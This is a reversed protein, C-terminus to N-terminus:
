KFAKVTMNYFKMFVDKSERKKRDNVIRVRAAVIALAQANEVLWNYAGKDQLSAKVFKFMAEQKSRQLFLIAETNEEMADLMAALVNYENKVLWKYAEHSGHVTSAFAALEPYNKLLFSYFKDKGDIAESLAILVKADYALLNKTKM